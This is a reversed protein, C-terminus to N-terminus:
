RARRRGPRARGCWAVVACGFVFGGLHAWWAVGQAAAREGSGIARLQLLLWGILLLWAPVRLQIWPIQFTIWARPHLLLFAGMVAAIGGSAGVAPVVAGPNMAVHTLGAAISGAVYFCAYGLHGFREEVNDGLAWLLVMNTAFHILGSHVLPATFLPRYLDPSLFESRLLRAVFKQPILGYRDMLAMTASPDATLKVYLLVLYATACAAVIAVNVLPFLRVPASDRVPAQIV